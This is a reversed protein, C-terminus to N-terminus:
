FTRITSGKSFWSWGSCVVGEVQYGASTRANFGTAYTDGEGCGTWSYGTTEIAVYGQQKLAREAGAPDSCAALGLAVAALALSLAPSLKKM